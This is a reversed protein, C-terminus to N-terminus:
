KQNIEEELGALTEIIRAFPPAEGFIMVRMADYDKELDRRHPASPMLKFTGPRAQVYNAWGCPYFRQKFEVVDRLLDLAHLAADKVPSHALRHLDYYHRSYRPLMVGTRHAQQHLITAKEWFTREAAIAVVPCAPDAFLEPFLDAAYPRIVHPASPVWSALPGIELRVNPRLYTESFAAPYAVEIAQADRTDIAATVQPCV